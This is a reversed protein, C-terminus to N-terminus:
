HRVMYRCVTRGAPENGHEAGIIVVKRTANFNGKEFAVIERGSVSYGIVRRDLITNSRETTDASGTGPTALVLLVLLLGLVPGVLQFIQVQGERVQARVVALGCCVAMILKAQM